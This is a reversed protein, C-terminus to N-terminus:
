NRLHPSPHGTIRRHVKHGRLYCWHELEHVPDQVYGWINGLIFMLYSYTRNSQPQRLVAGKQEMKRNALSRKKAIIGLTDTVFQM